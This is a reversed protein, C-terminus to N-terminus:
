KKHAATWEAIKPHNNTADRLAVIRPYADQLM